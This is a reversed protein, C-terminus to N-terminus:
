FNYSLGFTFYEKFQFYGLNDDKFTPNRNDDFRWLTYLETSLYKNFQFSLANELESETYRYSTFYYFRSRWTLDKAIKFKANAEVKSGFDQRFHSQLNYADHITQEDSGIYRMKYSLPLLAMSFTNGNKMSPKFDVGISMFADLPALFDSFVHENNARYGPMFQTNAEASVTYYWAKAAKVGLKSYLAIKDNNTLFKHFQDSKTTVYGLRMDLKNDWQIKKQDNYNAELVLNSFLTVNNDGGKYWKESFYNQTFQLTFRGSTAWFNPKEIQLEVEVDDVVTAVDKVETVQKYINNLDEKKAKTVKAPAIINESSIQSDYYNFLNPNNTYADVLLDGVSATLRQRYDMGNSLVPSDTRQEPTQYNLSLKDSLVSSYYIGPSTLRYLYPSLTVDDNEEKMKNERVQALLTEFSSVVSSAKESYSDIATQNTQANMTATSVAGAVVILSLVKKMM